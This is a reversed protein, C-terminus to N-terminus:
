PAAEALKDALEKVRSGEKAEYINVLLVDRRMGPRDIQPVGHFAQPTKIFGIVSNPMFPARWVENFQDFPHRAKGHCTFDPDKPVYIATGCDRMSDDRALYFLLSVIKDPHDTHPRIEYGDLDMILRADQIMPVAKGHFRRRLFWSFRRIVTACVEDLMADSLDGWFGERMVEPEVFYRHGYTTPTYREAAPLEDLMRNYIGRPFVDTAYFHPFPNPAVDARMIAASIHAAESAFRRIESAPLSSM